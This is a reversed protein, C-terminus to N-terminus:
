WVAFGKVMVSSGNRCSPPLLKLDEIGWFRIQHQESRGGLRALAFVGFANTTPVADVFNLVQLLLTFLNATFDTCKAQGAFPCALHWRIKFNRHSSVLLYWFYPVPCDDGPYLLLQERYNSNLSSPQKQSFASENPQHYIRGPASLRYGPEGRRKQANNIKFGRHSSAAAERWLSGAPKPSPTRQGDAVTVVLVLPNRVALPRM